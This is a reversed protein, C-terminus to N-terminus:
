QQNNLDELARRPVDFYAYPRPEKSVVCLSHDMPHDAIYIEDSGEIEREVAEASWDAGVFFSGNNGLFCHVEDKGAVAKRAVEKTILISM